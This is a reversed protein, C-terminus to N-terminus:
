GAAPWKLESEAQEKPWVTVPKGGQIQIVSMPKADNEGQESFDIPGFFTEEDLGAVADRVKQTDTSGAKELGLALALCAATAEANHYEPDQGFKAKFDRGYDGATGFYKDSGKVQSVWQTSGLVGEASDGLTKVFDPTPPAVTEGFGGTPKVGLEGSQKIIAIGEELHVSGLILDADKGRVKTLAPSVDTAGEPFSETAVVEMGQKEAEAEGGETVTKSFGDDATLFVVTKPKPQALEAVAKVMSAAYQTAPSLVAFTQKYGKEFIKDDAGAGEVMVQGNKEIVAAAAETSSSGYPGLVLKIGDDNFGDVLQGATDPESKDDRYTIAIKYSKDGVKVGGKENVRSTCFEYGQKTLEGERALQGTLSLAAGLKITDGKVADGSEEKGCAATFALACLVVCTATLRYWSM